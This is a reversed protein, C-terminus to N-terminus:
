RDDKGRNGKNRPFSYCLATATRVAISNEDTGDGVPIIPRKTRITRHLRADHFDIDAINIICAHNLKLDIPIIARCRLPNVTYL